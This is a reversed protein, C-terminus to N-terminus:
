PMFLDISVPMVRYHRRYGVMSDPISPIKTPTTTRAPFFACHRHLPGLLCVYCMNAWTTLGPPFWGPPPCSPSTATPTVALPAPVTRVPYHLYIDCSADSPMLHTSGPSPHYASLLFARPADADCRHCLWCTAFCGRASTAATRYTVPTRRQCFPTLTRRM